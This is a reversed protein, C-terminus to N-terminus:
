IVAVTYKGKIDISQKRLCETALNWADVSDQRYDQGNDESRKSAQGRNKSLNHLHFFVIARTRLSFIFIYTRTVM